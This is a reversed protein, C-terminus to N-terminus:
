PRRQGVTAEGVTEVAIKEVHPIFKHIKRAEAIMESGFCSATTYTPTDCFSLSVPLDGGGGGGGGAM